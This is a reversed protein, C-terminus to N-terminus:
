IVLAPLLLELAEAVTDPLDADPHAVWHEGAALLAAILAHGVSVPFLAGPPNGSRAAAFDAAVARWQAFVEWAHARVAPVSQLLQTRQLAWEHEEPPYDFAARVGRVLVDVYPEDAAAETVVARLRGLEADSEVWLVDAKTPFYRFFTRRSVHVAATIDGVSTQEFGREVFLRQAAAALAHASTAAPRGPSAAM